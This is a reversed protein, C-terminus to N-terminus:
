LAIHINFRGHRANRDDKITGPTQEVNRFDLSNLLEILLQAVKEDDPYIKYYNVQSSSIVGGGVDGFNVECGIRRLNAALNAVNPPIRGRSTEIYIRLPDSDKARILKLRAQFLDTRANAYKGELVSMNSWWAWTGASIAVVALILSGSLRRALTRKRLTSAKLFDRESPLLPDVTSFKELLKGGATTQASRGAILWEKVAQELRATTLVLELNAELWSKVPEAKAIRPTRLAVENSSSVILVGRDLLETVASIHEAQPGAM